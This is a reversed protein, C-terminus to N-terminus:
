LGIEVQAGEDAMLIVEDQAGVHVGLDLFRKGGLPDAVILSAERVKL